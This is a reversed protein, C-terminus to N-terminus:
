AHNAPAEGAHTCAALAPRLRIGQRCHTVFLGERAGTLVVAGISRERRLSRTLEDLERVMRRGMFNHPPADFLVTLVRGDLETRFTTPM